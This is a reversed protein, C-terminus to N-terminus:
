ESLMHFTLMLASTGSTEGYHREIELEEFLSFM